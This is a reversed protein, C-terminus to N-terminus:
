KRGERKIKLPSHIEIEQLLDADGLNTYFYRFGDRMDDFCPTDELTGDKRYKTICDHYKGKITLKQNTEDYICSVVDSYAFTYREQRAHYPNYIHKKRFIELYEDTFTIQMDSPVRPSVLDKFLFIGILVLFVKSIANLERLLSTRLIVSLLLIVAWFIIYIRQAIYMKKSVVPNVAETYTITYTNEM